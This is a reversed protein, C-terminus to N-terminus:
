HRLNELGLHRVRATAHTSDGHVSLWTKAEHLQRRIEDPTLEMEENGGHRVRRPFTLLARCAVIFARAKTADGEEDYTANTLYVARIDDYTSSSTIGSAM